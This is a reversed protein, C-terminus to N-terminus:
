KGHKVTIVRCLLDMLVIDVRCVGSKKVLWSLYKQQFKFFFNGDKRRCLKASLDVSRNFGDLVSFLNINSFIM